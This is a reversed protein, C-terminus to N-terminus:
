FQSMINTYGTQMTPEISNRYEANRNPNAVKHHETFANFCVRHNHMVLLTSTVLWDFVYLIDGFQGLLNSANLTFCIVNSSIVLLMTTIGDHALEKWCIEGRQKYRRHIVIFFATSFIINAPLDLLLRFVPLLPSHTTYCGISESIRAVSELWVMYLFLPGPAGVVVVSVGLLWKNRRHALYAREFILLNIAFTSITISGIISWVLTYCSLGFDSDFFANSALSVVGPFTMGICCWSALKRPEKIIIQLAQYFNRAFIFFTFFLLIYQFYLGQLRRRFVNVDNYSEMLYQYGNMDSDYAKTRM